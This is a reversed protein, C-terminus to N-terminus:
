TTKRQQVKLNQTKKELQLNARQMQRLCISAHRKLLYKKKLPSLSNYNFPTNKKKQQSLLALSALELLYNIRLAKEPIM